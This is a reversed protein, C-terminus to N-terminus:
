SIAITPLPIRAGVGVNASTGLACMCSTSWRKRLSHVFTVRASTLARSTFDAAIRGLRPM